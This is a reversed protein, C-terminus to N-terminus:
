PGEAARLPKIRKLGKRSPRPNEITEGTSLTAFHLLGLDIGVADKVPPLPEDEVECSCTVYWQNVDRKVTVTKVQGQM